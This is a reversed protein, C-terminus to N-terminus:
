CSHVQLCYRTVDQNIQSHSKFGFKEHLHISANNGNFIDAYLPLAPFIEPCLLQKLLFSGAGKGRSEERVGETIYFGDAEQKAAFYAIIGRQEKLLWVRYKIPTQKLYFSEFWLKQNAPLIERQDNTMMKRCENRILALTLAEELTTLPSISLM